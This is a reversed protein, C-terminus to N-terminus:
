KINMGNGKTVTSKVTGDLTRIKVYIKGNKIVASNDYYMQNIKNVLDKKSSFVAKQSCIITNGSFKDNHSIKSKKTKSYFLTLVTDRYFGDYPDGKMTIKFKTGSKPTGYTIVKTTKYTYLYISYSISRKQKTNYLTVLYAGGGRGNKITKNKSVKKFHVDYGNPNKTFQIKTVKWGSNATVKLKLKNANLFDVAVLSDKFYKKYSVNNVTFSKLANARKIKIVKSVTTVRDGCTIKCKIVASGTKKYTLRVSEKNQDKNGFTFCIYSKSEAPISWKFSANELAGENTQSSPKVTLTTVKDEYYSVGEDDAYVIEYSEGAHAEISKGFLVACTMICIFVISGIEKRIRKEM